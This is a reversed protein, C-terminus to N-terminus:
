CGGGGRANTFARAGDIAGAGPRTHARDAHRTGQAECRAGRANNCKSPECGVAVFCPTPVELGRRIPHARMGSSGRRIPHARMGSSGGRRHVHWVHRLSCGHHWRVHRSSCGHHWRVHWTGHHAATIGGSTGHRAAAIGSSVVGHAGHLMERCGLPTHARRGQTSQMNQLHSPRQTEHMSHVQDGEASPIPRGTYPLQGLAQGRRDVAEARRDHAGVHQPQAQTSTTCENETPMPGHQARTLM